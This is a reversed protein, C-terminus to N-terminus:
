QLVGGFGGDGQPPKGGTSGKPDVVQKRKASEESIRNAVEVIRNLLVKPDHAMTRYILGIVEDINKFGTWMIDGNQCFVIKQERELIQRNIPDVNNIDFVVIEGERMPLDEAFTVPMKKDAKPDKKDDSM